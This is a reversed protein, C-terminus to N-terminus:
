YDLITLESGVYDTRNHFTDGKAFKIGGNSSAISSSTIKIGSSRWEFGGVEGSPPVDMLLLPKGRRVLYRCVAGINELLASNNECYTLQAAPFGHWRRAKFQLPHVTKNRTFIASFCGFEHQSLLLERTEQAITPEVVSELDDLRNHASGVMSSIPTVNVVIGRNIPKFGLALLIRRVHPAPSLDTFIAQRDQLISRMMIPARWRHEPELYWSALNIIRQARKDLHKRVSAPTLMIGVPRADATMLYGAPVGAEANGGPRSLLRELAIEWFRKARTPFGRGLLDFAHGCNTGDIPLLM